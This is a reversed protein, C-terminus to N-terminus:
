LLRSPSRWGGLERPRIGLRDFRAYLARLGIGLARASAKLDGGRDAIAQLM